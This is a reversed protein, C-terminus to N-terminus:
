RNKAGLFASLAAIEADSLHLNPMVTGPKLKSPDKLWQQLYEASYKGNSLQPPEAGIWFPGDSTKVAPHLHCMVCGKDIFLSRGLAVQDPAIVSANETVAVPQAVSTGTTTLGIVGVLAAVAVVVLAWRAHTRLWFVLAGIAIIVGAAGAALPVANATPVVSVATTAPAAAVVTLPAMDQTVMGFQEIDVKWNWQGARPLTIEAVYHGSDGSRKATAIFSDQTDSRDFRVIPALDDRLTRGHQRVTFGITFSQGAVIQDSLKDLTIVAWGGAEAILITALLLALAIVFSRSIKRM